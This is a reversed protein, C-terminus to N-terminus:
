NNRLFNDCHYVNRIHNKKSIYNNEQLQKMKDWVTLNQLQSYHVSIQFTAFLRARNQVSDSLEINGEM